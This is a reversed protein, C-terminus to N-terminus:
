PEMDTLTVDLSMDAFNETLLGIEDDSSTNQITEVRIKYKENLTEVKKWIPTEKDFGDIKLLHSKLLTRHDRPLRLEAFNALQLSDEDILSLLRSPFGSTRRIHNYASKQSAESTSQRLSISRPPKVKILQTLQKYFIPKNAFIISEALKKVSYYKLYQGISQIGSGKYIETTKVTKFFGFAARIANRWSSEVAEFNTDSIFWLWCGGHFIKSRFTLLVRKCVNSKMKQKRLNYLIKLRKNLWTRINSVQSGFRLNEDLTIGLLKIEKKFPIGINLTEQDVPSHNFKRKIALIESKAKNSKLKNEVCWSEYFNDFEVIKKDVERWSDGSVAVASDDAFKNLMFLQSENNGMDFYLVFLAPSWPSGQPVGLTPRIKGFKHIIIRGGLWRCLYGLLVTYKSKGSSKVAAEMKKELLHFDLSDYAASLDKAIIATKKKAKENKRIQDLINELFDDINRRKLFAFCYNFKTNELLMETCRRSLILDILRALLTGVCIPRLKNQGPKNILSLRSTKMKTPISQNSFILNNLCSTLFTLNKGNKPLFNYSANDNGKCRKNMRKMALKVEKNTLYKFNRTILQKKWWRKNAAANGTQILTSRKDISEETELFTKIRLFEEKEDVRNCVGIKDILRARERATIETELTKMLKMATGFDVDEIFESLVKKREDHNTCKLLKRKLTSDNAFKRERSIRRVKMCRPWMIKYLIRNLNKINPKLDKSLETFLRQHEEYSLKSPDVYFKKVKESPEEREPETTKTLNLHLYITKHDSIFENSTSGSMEVDCEVPNIWIQDPGDETISAASRGLARFTGECIIPFFGKELLNEQLDTAGENKRPNDPNDRSQYMNLDGLIADFNELHNLEQDNLSKGPRRYFACIKLGDALEIVNFIHNGGLDYQSIEPVGLTDFDDRKCIIVNGLNREDFITEFELTPFYDFWHQPLEKNQAESLFLCSIKGSDFENRIKTMKTLSNLGRVNLSAVTVTTEPM